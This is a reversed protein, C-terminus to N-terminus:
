GVSSGLGFAWRVLFASMGSIAASFASLIITRKGNMVQYTDSSAGVGGCEPASSSGPVAPLCGVYALGQVLNGLASPGM